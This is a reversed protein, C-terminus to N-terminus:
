GCEQLRRQLLRAAFAGRVRPVSACVYTEDGSDVVAVLTAGDRAVGPTLGDPAPIWVEELQATVYHIAHRLAM